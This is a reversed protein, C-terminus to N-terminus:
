PPYLLISYTQEIRSQCVLASILNPHLQDADTCFDISVNMCYMHMM